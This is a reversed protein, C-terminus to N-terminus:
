RSIHPPGLVWDGQHGWWCLIVREQIMYPRVERKNQPSEFECSFCNPLSILGWMAEVVPRTLLSSGYNALIATMIYRPLCNESDNIIFDRFSPFCDGIVERTMMSSGKLKWVENAGRGVSDTQIFAFRLKRWSYCHLLLTPPLARVGLSPGGNGAMTGPTLNGFM